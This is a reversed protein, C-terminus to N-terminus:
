GGRKVALEVQRFEQKLRKKLKEPLPRNGYSTYYGALSNLATQMTTFSRLGATKVDRRYRSVYDNIQTRALSQLSEKNPDADPADIAATITELVTITDQSYNGTLGAVNTSCGMLGVVVALVLALLRSLYKISM